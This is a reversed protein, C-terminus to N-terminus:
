GGGQDQKDKKQKGGSAGGLKAQADRLERRVDALQNRYKLREELVEVAAAPNGSRNLAVGLNYLAYAYNLEKTRGAKRYSDVSAQLLPLAEAYREQNNLRFGRDNLTAADGTPTAPATSTPPQTQTSPPEDAAPTAAPTAQTQTRERAAQTTTKPTTSAAQRSNDGPNSLAIALAAGVVAAAIGIPVLPSIRPSHAPPPGAAPV